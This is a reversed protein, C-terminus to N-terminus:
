NVRVSFTDCVLWGDTDDRGHVRAWLVCRRGVSAGIVELAAPLVRMSTAIRELSKEVKRNLKEYMVLMFGLGGSAM